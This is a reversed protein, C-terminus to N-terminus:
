VIEFEDPSSYGLRKAIEAKTIKIPEYKYEKWEDSNTILDIVMDNCTQCLSGKSDIFYIYNPKDFSGPVVGSGIIYERHKRAIIPNTDGWCYVKHTPEKKVEVSEGEEPVQKYVKNLESWSLYSEIIQGNADLVSIGRRHLKIKKNITPFYKVYIDFMETNSAMDNSIYKKLREFWTM